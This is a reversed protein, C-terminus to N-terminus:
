ATQQIHQLKNCDAVCSYGTSNWVLSVLSSVKSFFFFVGADDVVSSSSCLFYFKDFTLSVTTNWLLNLLWSVWSYLLGAAHVRAAAAGAASTPASSPDSFPHQVQTGFMTMCQPVSCCVAVCQLVSCCVAVCQLVSCCVAVCQLVSCCVAVCQL